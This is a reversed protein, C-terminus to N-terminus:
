RGDRGDHSGSDPSLLRVIESVDQVDELHLVLDKAQEARDRPIPNPGFAVCDRYREVVEDTSLPNDPHGKAALVTPSSRLTGDSLHIDVRIGESTASRDASMKQALSAYRPNQVAQDTFHTLSLKRDNLACSVAWPMSFQAEVYSRPSRKMEIPHVTVSMRNTGYVNIADIADVALPGQGLISFVGTLAAHMAACCPYAKFGLRAGEFRQGLADTLADMNVTAQHYYATYLGHKGTLAGQTGRFGLRALRAAALGNRVAFGAMLANNPVPVVLTQRTGAVQSFALGLANLVGDADLGYVKSAAMAAGFAGHLFGPNWGTVMPNAVARVLRIQVDAALAIATLLQRGNVRGTQEAAALAAPVVATGIAFAHSHDVWWKDECELAKALFGNVLGAAEVQLRDGFGLVTAEAGAGSVQQAYARVQEAGEASNGAVMTGLGWLVQRRAAEVAAAPLDSYHKDAVNRALAEEATLTKVTM